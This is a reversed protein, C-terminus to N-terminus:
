GKTSHNPWSVNSNPGGLTGLDMPVGVWLVAHVSTNSALNAGGSIWGLDNIGVPEPVGGLPSGLNFVYYKPPQKKQGVQARVPLVSALTMFVAAATIYTRIKPQM